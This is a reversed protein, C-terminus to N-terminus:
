WWWWWWWWRTARGDTLMATEVLQRWKSRDQARMWATNLGHIHPQLDLERTRLWTRRPRGARRRWYRRKVSLCDSPSVSLCVGCSPMSRATCLTVRTFINMVLAPKCSVHNRAFMEVIYVVTVSKCLSYIQVFACLWSVRTVNSTNTAVKEHHSTIFQKQVVSDSNEQMNWGCEATRYAECSRAVTATVRHMHAAAYPTQRMKRHGGQPM